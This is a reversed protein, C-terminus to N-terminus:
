SLRRPAAAAFFDFSSGPKSFSKDSLLFSHFRIVAVVAHGWDGRGVVVVDGVVAEEAAVVAVAAQPAAFLQEISLSRKTAEQYM